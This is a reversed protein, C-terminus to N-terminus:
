LFSERTPFFFNSLTPMRHAYPPAYQSFVTLNCHANLTTVYLSFEASYSSCVLVEDLSRISKPVRYGRICHARMSHSIGPVYGLSTVSLLLQFFYALFLCLTRLVFCGHGFYTCNSPKRFHALCSVLSNIKILLARRYTSSACM